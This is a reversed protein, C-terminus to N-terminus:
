SKRGDRGAVRRGAWAREIRRLLAPYVILHRFPAILKLYIEGLAGRPKVYIAMRARYRDGDPVWCLQIVGHVTDNSIEAAAEDETRYLTTIGKEMELFSEGGTGRLHEPLRDKLSADTSGPITRVKGPDDWRLLAGLKLRVRFLARTLSPGGGAPDISRLVDLLVGFDDKNGEVPLAWVDLLDLDPAISNIVWRHQEHEANRLRVPVEVATVSGEADHPVNV